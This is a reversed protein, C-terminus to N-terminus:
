RGGSSPASVWAAPAPDMMAPQIWARFVSAQVLLGLMLEISLAVVTGVLLASWSMRPTVRVDFHPDNMTTAMSAEQEKIM